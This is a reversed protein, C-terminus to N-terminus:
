QLFCPFFSVMRKRYLIVNKSAQPKRQGRTVPEIKFGFLFLVNLFSFVNLCIFLYCFIFFVGFCCEFIFFSFLYDNPIVEAPRLSCALYWAMPVNHFVPTQFWSVHFLSLLKCIKWCFSIFILIIPRQTSFFLHFCIHFGFVSSFEGLFGDSVFGSTWFVSFFGVNQAVDRHAITLVHLLGHLLSKTGGIQM